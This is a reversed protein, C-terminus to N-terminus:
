VSTSRHLLLALGLDALIMAALAAWASHLLYGCGVIVSGLFIVTYEYSFGPLLHEPLRVNELAQCLALGLLVAVALLLAIAPEAVLWVKVQEVPLYGRPPCRIRGPTPGCSAGRAGFSWPGM